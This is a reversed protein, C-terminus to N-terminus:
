CAQVTALQTRAASVAQIRSQILASAESLTMDPTLSAGTTRLGEFAAELEGIEAQAASQAATRVESMGREVASVATQVQGITSNPNNTIINLDSVATQLEVLENCLATSQTSGGTTSPQGQTSSQGSSSQGETSSQAQCGTLLATILAVYIWKRM